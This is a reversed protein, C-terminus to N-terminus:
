EFQNGRRFEGPSTGTWRKFARSFNPLTSYGLEGAIETLTVDTNELLDVALEHRVQEVVDSFDAGEEALKRQLTRVSLEALKAVDGITLWGASRYGKLVTLLATKFEGDPSSSLLRRAKTETLSDGPQQNPMTPGARNLTLPKPVVSVHQFDSARKRWHGRNLDVRDILQDGILPGSKQQNSNM